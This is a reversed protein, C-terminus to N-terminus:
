GQRTANDKNDQRRTRDEQKTQHDQTTTKDQQKTKKDNRRTKDQRVTDHRAKDQGTIHTIRSLGHVKPTKRTRKIAPYALTMTRKQTMKRWM